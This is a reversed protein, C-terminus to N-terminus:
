VGVFLVTEQRKQLFGVPSCPDVVSGQTKTVTYIALDIPPVMLFQIDSEFDLQLHDIQLGPELRNNTQRPKKAPPQIGMGM